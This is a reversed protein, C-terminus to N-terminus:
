SKKLPGCIGWEKPFLTIGFLNEPLVDKIVRRINNKKL